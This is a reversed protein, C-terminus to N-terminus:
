DVFVFENAALLVQAYRGWSDLALRIPKPGSFDADARWTRGAPDDRLVLSPNWQFTDSNDTSRCDVVFDLTDGVQVAIEDLRTDIKTNQAIWEQLVGTRSSVVRARVGDGSNQEHKLKGSLRLIGSVSATWRRIVASNQDRGPHGNAKQLQLFGRPGDAPHKEEPRWADERFVTFRTFDVVHHTSDDVRGWGYSWAASPTPSPGTNPEHADFTIFHLGLEIEDASPPRQFLLEYLSRIREAGSRASPLDTRNALTRALEIEAESNMFYLAQQPVTTQFRAASTSDPSAFDFARLLGPLNQRDVFGYLSRRPAPSEAGFIEVPQGGLTPDLQGAVSLLSDRIGEFELRRRNQRWYHQNSPDRDENTAFAAKETTTGTPSSAQQYTASLLLERHLTKLSWGKEMFELALYDLLEPHTPPDSRLGFDSPTRVLPAGFHRLWVRNVLVRATLPNERSTIAEALERRGSGQTFPKRNPGALLSLFQRPVKAGPNGAQGRKFIVPDSATPNDIMAMARRPAGRHTADLEEIKRQLARLKQAIPTDFFRDPDKIAIEIPSDIGLLLIRLQEQDPDSWKGPAPQKAESTQKLATEWNTAASNFLRGYVEALQKRTTPPEAKLQTAVAINLPKEASMATLLAEIKPKAQTALEPEPIDFLAFWPGFIPHTQARWKALQTKWAGVLGPDLSRTRALGEMQSGDLTLSEQATLLYDGVQGRLKKVLNSTHETRYTQREAVRKARESEYETALQPNPAPGLFPKEAPEHASQFVGYLSYYDATPIPDFKHDHCRACQVTLAQIGRFVVDIRDDIIDSENNLFRRGLTLFGMAALSSPDDKTAYFDGAIQYQIFRDYPLDENLAQVVWDRYTYSYPYRREEEFVYGKTDAYRAVDLWIRGWREGYAPSALLRDVAREFAGEQHDALYAVMEAPSPPLGTLDFTARRLLTRFDARPSPTLGQREMQALVFRDLPRQIWHTRQVVPPAPHTPPQFAWHVTTANTSTARAVTVTESERRPDVAGHRVWEELASIEDPKLAGGKSDKPPMQDLDKAQGTIAQILLSDEPHGPHIVPGATGGKALDAATDLRLGGKPKAAKASHCEYCHEVLLPRIRNEFFEVQAPDPGAATTISLIGAATSLFVVARTLALASCGWSTATPLDGRRKRQALYFRFQM